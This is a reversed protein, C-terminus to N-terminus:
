CQSKNTSAEASTVSMRYGRSVLEVEQVLAVAASAAADFAQSQAVFTSASEVTRQRLYQLWQRRIFAYIILGGVAIFTGVLSLSGSGLKSNGAGRAWHILWILIFAAAGTSFTGTLNVPVVPPQAISTLGHGPSQNDAFANYHSVSIENSLLQSAVITYRFQELFRANERSGLRSNVARQM